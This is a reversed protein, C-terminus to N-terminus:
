KEFGDFKGGTVFQLWINKFDNYQQKKRQLYQIFKLRNLDVKCVPEIMCINYINNKFEYTLLNGESFVALSNDLMKENIELGYEQKIDIYIEDFTLIIKGHGIGKLYKYMIVLQERTPVISELVFTNCKEDESNYLFVTNEINNKHIFTKLQESFYFMDYLIIDNYRKYDIKDVIPNIVVDVEYKRTDSEPRNYNISIKIKNSNERYELSSLLKYAQGLTNVLILVPNDVCVIEIKSEILENKCGKFIKLLSDAAINYNECQEINLLLNKYYNKLVPHNRYSLSESIKIDKINLQINCNGNYINYEPTFVLDIKDNSNILGAFGGLEFGICDIYRNGAQLGFKLHKGDTGVGRMNMPFLSKAVFKPSPNAIGFPELQELENMFRNDINELELIDDYMIKRTLDEEALIEEAIANIQERFIELNDVSISLGAAQHHGGFKIFLDKCKSMSEFLNFEPISRASGKAVDDEIGLIITPKYYKEVIRSAVIGIVGTHWNKNYVVLVKDDAYGPDNEIIDIAENSIDEEIQQRYKNEENLLESLKVAENADATTLLEVGTQAVSIRGAANIRPAIGFAIHGTNLKKNLLGSINLLAQIGLNKSKAMYDLGNKVIVRNEDILPVVDAVTAIATIDLYEYISKKFIDEPTLAQILKLALGCGCLKDFPYTCDKQMPNIIAYANPLGEQCEHHDTIVIDIGLDNAFDVEDISSIGCDVTIILGVDNNVIEEIAETNLGYGEELRDPIYFSVPYNISDFYKLMISISAVGDVDYDGYICIKEKNKIAKKVRNIVKDMDKLLFPDHLQEISPYLFEKADEHSEIKRNLLVKAVPRTITLSNMLETIKINDLKNYTWYRKQLM